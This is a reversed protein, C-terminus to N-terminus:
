RAELALTFRWLPENPGFDHYIKALEKKWFNPLSSYLIGLGDWDEVYIYNDYIENIKTCFRNLFNPLNEVQDMKINKFEKLLRRGERKCSRKERNLSQLTQSDNRIVEPESDSDNSVRTRKRRMRRRNEKAREEFGSGNPAIQAHEREVM